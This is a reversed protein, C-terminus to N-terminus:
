PTHAEPDAVRVLDCVLASQAEPEMPGFLPHRGLTHGLGPHGTLKPPQAYRGRRERLAGFAHRPPVQVDAEGSHAVIPGEFHTLREAVAVDDSFWMKRWAMSARGKFSAADDEALLKARYQRHSESMERALDDIAVPEQGLRAALQPARRRARRKLAARREPPAAQLEAPDLVEDGNSDYELLQEVTRTTGQWRALEVPSRGVMGLFVLASPKLAGREVLTAIHIAGESHGFLVLRTPDTAPHELAWETVQALDSRMTEPTVSLRVETDVCHRRWAKTAEDGDYEERPLTARSCSVGRYDHRLVGVGRSLLEAALERFVLGQPDFPPGQYLDTAYHVDRDFLGTGPQMVVIPVPGSRERPLDLQGRLTAKGDHSSLELEVSEAALPPLPAQPPAGGCALPLLFAAVM